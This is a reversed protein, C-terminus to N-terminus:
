PTILTIEKKKVANIIDFIDGAKHELIVGSTFDLKEYHSDSGAQMPLGNERAFAFAKENVDRPMSANFVEIGDVFEAPAPFSNRIWYASRYPHAQAIYGCYARVLASYKDIPLEDFGPNALLFDLDLGYTLFDSGYIGYEMGFFVDLGYKEGAKKTKEYGRYYLRMKEDWPIHYPINSNGNVFHETIIVGAYGRKKYARVQQAPSSLACRSVQTTHMHTEYKYGNM